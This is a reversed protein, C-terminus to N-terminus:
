TPYHLPPYLRRPMRAPRRPQADHPSAAESPARRASPARHPAKPHPGQPAPPLPPFVSSKVLPSCAQHRPLVRKVQWAQFDADPANKWTMCCVDDYWGPCGRFGEAVGMIEPAFDKFYYVNPNANHAGQIKAITVSWMLWVAFGLLLNPISAWLNRTGIQKGENIYFQEDEIDWENLTTGGSFTTKCGTSKPNKIVYDGAAKTEADTTPSSCSLSTPHHPLLRHTRAPPVARTDRAAAAGALASTANLCALHPQLSQQAGQQADQKVPQPLPRPSACPPQSAPPARAGTVIKVDDVQAMEAM